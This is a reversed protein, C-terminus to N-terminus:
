VLTEFRSGSELTSQCRMYAPEDHFADISGMTIKSKESADELYKKACESTM